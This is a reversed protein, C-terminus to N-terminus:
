FWTIDYTQTFAKEPVTFTLHTVEHNLITLPGDSMYDHSYMVLGDWVGRKENGLPTDKLYVKCNKGALTMTESQLYRQNSEENYYLNRLASRGGNESYNNTKWEDKEIEEKGSDKWITTERYGSWSTKTLHNYIYVENTIYYNTSSEVETVYDLRIRKGSNDWTTVCGDLGKTKVSVKQYLKAIAPTDDTNGNGNTNGNGDDDNNNKNCCVLAISIIAMLISTKLVNKMKLFIKTLLYNM